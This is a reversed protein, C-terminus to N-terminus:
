LPLRWASVEVSQFRRHENLILRTEILRDRCARWSDPDVEELSSIWSSKMQLDIKRIVEERHNIPLRIEKSYLRLFRRGFFERWFRGDRRVDPRYGIVKGVKDLFDSPPISVYQYSSVCLFGGRCLVRACEDLASERKEIFGFCSGAVVHSFFDDGFPLNEAKAVSYIPRLEQPLSDSNTRARMISEYSVDIGWAKCRSWFALNQSSFGTSCALDLVRSSENIWSFSLWDVVTQLGGPPTNPYGVLGLFDPYPLESVVDSLSSHM